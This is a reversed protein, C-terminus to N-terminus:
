GADGALSEPQGRRSRGTSNLERQFCHREGISQAHSLKGASARQDRLRARRQPAVSKQRDSNSLFFQNGCASHRTSLKAGGDIRSTCYTPLLFARGAQVFYTPSRAPPRASPECTNANGFSSSPFHAGRELGARFRSALAPRAALQQKACDPDMAVTPPACFQRNAVPSCALPRGAARPVARCLYLARCINM